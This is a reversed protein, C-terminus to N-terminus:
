QKQFMHSVYLKKSNESNSILELFYKYTTHRRENEYPLDLIKKLDNCIIEDNTHLHVYYYDKSSIYKIFKYNNNIKAVVIHINRNNTTNYDKIEFMLDYYSKNLFNDILFM